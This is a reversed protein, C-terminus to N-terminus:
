LLNLKNKLFYRNLLYAGVAVGGNVLIMFVLQIHAQYTLIKAAEAYDYIEETLGAYIASIIMSGISNVTSIVSTVGAYIGIGLIVRAKKAIISAITISLYMLLIGYFLGIFMYIGYEVCFLVFHGGSFDIGGFVISFMDAYVAIIEKAYEPTFAAVIIAGLCAFSVVFTIGNWLVGSLVKANFVSDTKVPLTFTLYGEDTFLNCYYRRMIMIISLVTYAVIAVLSIIIAIALLMILSITAINPEFSEEWNFNWLATAAGCGGLTTLAVILTFLWMTKGIDRFDYSFLKKLM